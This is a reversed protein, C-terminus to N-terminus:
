FKPREAKAKDRALNDRRERRRDSDPTSRNSQHLTAAWSGAIPTIPQHRGNKFTGLGM